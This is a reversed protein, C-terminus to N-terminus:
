LIGSRTWTKARRGQNRSPPLQFASVFANLPSHSRHECGPKNYRQTAKSPSCRGESCVSVGWLSTWSRLKQQCFRSKRVETQLSLSATDAVRVSSLQFLQVPGSFHPDWLRFHFWFDAQNKILSISLLLQSLEPAKGWFVWVWWLKKSYHNVRGLETIQISHLM